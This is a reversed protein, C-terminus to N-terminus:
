YKSQKLRQIVNDQQETDSSGHRPFPSSRPLLFQIAARAACITKTVHGTWGDACVALAWVGEDERVRHDM